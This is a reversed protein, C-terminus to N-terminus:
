TIIPLSIVFSAGKGDTSIVTITGRYSEVIQRVYFLGLGLGKTNHVNGKNIRYFKDFIISQEKKLIGLGNDKVTIRCENSIVEFNIDIKSSGYKVANDLLNVLITNLHFRNMMITVNEGNQHCNIQTQPHSLSFDALMDSIQNFQIGSDTDTSLINSAVSAETVKTFLTQLRDNQREILSLTDNFYEATLETRKRQLTKVAIDMTALPTRFEHTINNIFDAKIDSIKKQTILNKISFYFLGVVFLFLVVSFSLLGVMRGLVASQWNEISYSREVKVSGNYQKIKDISPNYDKKSVINDIQWTTATFPIEVKGKINNSFAPLRGSFITDTKHKSQVVANTVYVAYGINYKDYIRKESLLPSFATSLSDSNKAICVRFASKSAGKENYRAIFGGIKQMWANEIAQYHETNELEHLQKKVEENVERKILKYTNNILYAQITALSAVTFICGIILLLINSQMRSKMKYIYINEKNLLAEVM